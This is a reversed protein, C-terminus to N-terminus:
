RGKQHGKQEKLIEQIYHRILPHDIRDIPTQLVAEAEKLQEGRLIGRHYNDLLAITTHVEAYNAEVGKLLQLALELSEPGGTQRTREAFQAKFDETPELRHALVYKAVCFVDEKGAEHRGALYAVAKAYREIALSPRPSMSNKVNGSALSKGHTSADVPDSRRKLGYLPSFNMEAELSDLFIMAEQNLRLGLVYDRMKQLEEDSLPWIGREKLRASFKLRYGELEKFKVEDSVDKGGLLKMIDNTMIPNCLELERLRKAEEIQERHFPGTYGIELSIDFRDLMAPILLHNGSDKYNATAFFPRKGRFITHGLPSNWRGIDVATLLIDQKGEPLRNIEDAIVAPLYVALNWITAEGETHLKHFDPRGILTAHTQDPHGEIQCAEFLDYPLGALVASMAKAASTKGFGPEGTLLTNAGLVYGLAMVALKFHPIGMEDSPDVFYRQAVIEVNRVLKELPEM